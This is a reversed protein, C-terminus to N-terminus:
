ENSSLASLDIHDFKYDGVSIESINHKSFRNWKAPDVGGYVHNGCMELQLTDPLMYLFDLDDVYLGNLKLENLQTMTGITEIDIVKKAWGLYFIRLQPMERLPALDVTGFEHLGLIRLKKLNTLANLNLFDIDSLDGGSVWLSKLDEMKRFSDFDVPGGWCCLYLDQMKSFSRWFSSSVIHMEIGLDTLETFRSLTDLDELSFSFNTLDLSRVNRADADTLPRDFIGLQERVECEFEPHCFTLEM